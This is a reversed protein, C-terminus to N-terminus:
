LLAAQGQAPRAAGSATRKKQGAMRACDAVGLMAWLIAGTKISFASNSVLLNLCLYIGFAFRFRWADLNPGRSYVFLAWVFVMGVIGIQMLVYAYGSDAVFLENPSIGLVHQWTLTDIIQSAWM